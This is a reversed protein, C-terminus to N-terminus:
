QDEEAQRPQILIGESPTYREKSFIFSSEGTGGKTEEVKEASSRKLDERWEELRELEELRLAYHIANQSLHSGLQLLIKYRLDSPDKFYLWNSQEEVTHIFEQAAPTRLAAQKLFPLPSKGFRRAIFWELGVPARIDSGMLLLHFDAQRVAELNPPEGRLPTLVIQWALTVPIETIARSLISRETELDSAASIYLIVQDAMELEQQISQVSESKWRKPIKWQV